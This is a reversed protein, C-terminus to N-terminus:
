WDKLDPLQDRVQRVRQNFTGASKPIKNFEKLAHNYIQRCTDRYFDLQERHTDTPNLRYRYSYHM